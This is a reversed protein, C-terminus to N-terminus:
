DRFNASFITYALEPDSFDLIIWRSIFESSLYSIIKRNLVKAHSYPHGFKETGNTSLYHVSLVNASADGVTKGLGKTFATWKDETGYKYRDQIVLTFGAKEEVAADLMEDPSGGQDPWSIDIGSSIGLGMVDDYRRLLVLKGRCEGLTPLSDSLYWMSPDLSIQENLVKQIQELDNGHEHKVCFMITESPNDRLFRYCDSLVDELYITQDWPFFGKRCRCFGHWLSVRGDDENGLRIDLFRFGDELQTKISSAQCKTFYSLMAFESASDHTGPIAITNVPTGDSIRSMWSRTEDARNNTSAAQKEFLPALWLFGLVCIISALIILIVALVIKRARTKKKKAMAIVKGETIGM